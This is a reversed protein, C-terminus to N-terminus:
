LNSYRLSAKPFLKIAQKYIDNESCNFCRGGVLEVNKKFVEKLENFDQFISIDLDPLLELNPKNRKIGQLIEERGMKKGKKIGNM